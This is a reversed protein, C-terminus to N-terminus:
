AAGAGEAELRKRKRYLTASDIGLIRAAEELTKTREVVGRIHAEELEKLSIAAGPEIRDPTGDDISNAVPAPFDGPEIWEGSSLIVAREIANRLERLNGPWRSHMLADHAADSFGGLRKGCQNTFFALYNEALRLVDRPRERLPPLELTIVNLRYLLDERFRGEKVGEALDRNTAAIVRVNVKRVEHEGLREYEREQLLRLLKPQIEPPLEGIEDLFLTGGDAQAVKGWTDKLAGTFSGKVHGFLESELLERSLSPCSVTVFESERFPSQEHIARALVSKGTGSEGLLLITASSNAAKTAQEYVQQLAPEETTLDVGPTESSLRDELSQVRESLERTKAIRKLAQRLQDPTVPKTLFESAGLKVANVATQISGYATIVIVDLEPDAELLKPLLELGDAGGLKLDLIATDVREKRVFELAASEEGAEIVRHGATKLALRMTKRISEEDDIILINMSM